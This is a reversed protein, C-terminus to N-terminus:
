KKRTGLFDVLMIVMAILNLFPIYSVLIAGVLGAVGVDNDEQWAKVLIYACFITCVIVYIITGVVM